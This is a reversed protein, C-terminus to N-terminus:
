ELQIAEYVEATAQRRLDEESVILNNSPNSKLGELVVQKAMFTENLDDCQRSLDTITKM